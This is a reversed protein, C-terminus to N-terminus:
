ASYDAVIARAASADGISLPEGRATRCAQLAEELRPEDGLGLPAASDSAALAADVARRESETGGADLALLFAIAAHDAGRLRALRYINVFRKVARPSRGALPALAAVLDAEGSRWPLDLASRRADLKESQALGPPAEGVLSRALGAYFEPAIGSLRLPVQVYKNLQDACEAEGWAAALRKPDFALLTAFSGASLLRHAAEIFSAARTPPLSDLDDIAVILRQPVAFSSDAGRAIAADLSAAFAMALRARQDDGDQAPEFPSDVLPTAPRVAADDAARARREAEQARRAHAEVEAGLSDVRRTQNAILADLDRRRSDLDLKLLSAGRFIPQTFRSARWLCALIALCAALFATASLAGLLGQHAEIWSAASAGFSGSATLAPLWSEQTADARASSWAVLLLIVTLVILKTQGRYAWLAKLFGSIRGSPGGTEAVNRVLDRYTGLPDGHTFGFARLRAEIRARNARAYSDVNSGATEYLVTEVLKARRGDFDHLAQRETHLRHRAESLRENAERAAVHPDRVAQVAEQALAAYSGAGASGSNLVRFIDAAIANAPEGTSRGAEIRISVIRSLFPSRGDLEAAAAALQRVRDLLQALAFSKGTGRGGLLGVTLPPASRRHALLEAVSALAEGKGLADAGTPLDAAYIAASDEPPLPAPAPAPELSVEPAKTELGFTPPTREATKDSGAESHASRLFFDPL